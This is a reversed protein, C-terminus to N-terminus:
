LVLNALTYMVLLLCFLFVMVKWYGETTLVTKPENKQDSKNM